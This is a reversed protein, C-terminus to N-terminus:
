SGFAARSAGWRQRSSGPRRRPIAHFPTSGWTSSGDPNARSGFAGAASVSLDQVKNIQISSASVLLIFFTLLVTLLDNFSM